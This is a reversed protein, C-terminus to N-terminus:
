ISKNERYERDITTSQAHELENRILFEASDTDGRLLGGLASAEALLAQMTGGLVSAGKM